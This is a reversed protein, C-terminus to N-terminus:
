VSESHENLIKQIFTLAPEIVCIIPFGFELAGKVQDETILGVKKAMHAKNAGTTVESLTTPNSALKPGIQIAAVYGRKERLIRAANIQNNPVDAVATLFDRVDQDM